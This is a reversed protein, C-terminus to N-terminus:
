FTVWSLSSTSASVARLEVGQGVRLTGTFIRNTRARLRTATVWRSGRKAQITVAGAGPAMGWLKAVGKYRYATFPFTFATYSPKRVDQAPTPGATFIGSQYTAAYSPKPPDDRVNWWTVLSAGQTWLVYLAAELYRAQSALSLGDPDPKSDWSIETIWLPKRRKPLITGAKMAVPLLKTIKGLDPM